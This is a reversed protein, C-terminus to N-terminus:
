KQSLGMVQIPTTLQFTGWAVRLTVNMLDDKPHELTITLKEAPEEKKQFTMPVMFDVSAKAIEAADLRAKRVKLPDLFALSWASGEESRHAGLYYEGPPIEKGNIRLPLNTDLLTWFNDGMRWVRGKTMQDFTAPENYEPKWAPQGYSVIFEGPYTAGGVSGRITYLIRAFARQSVRGGGLASLVPEKNSSEQGFLTTSALALLVLGLRIGRMEFGGEHEQDREVRKAPM